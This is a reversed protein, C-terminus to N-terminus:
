PALHRVIKRDTREARMPAVKEFIALNNIKNRLRFRHSLLCSQSTFRRLRHRCEKLVRAPEVVQNFAAIKLFPNIRYPLQYPVVTEPRQTLEIQQTRHM